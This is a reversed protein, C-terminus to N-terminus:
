GALGLAQALGTALFRAPLWAMAPVLHPQELRGVLDDDLSGRATAAALLHPGVIRGAPGLSAL